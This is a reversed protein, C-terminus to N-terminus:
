NTFIVEMILEYKGKSNPNEMKLIVKNSNIKPM